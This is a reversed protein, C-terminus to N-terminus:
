SSAQSPEAPVPVQALPVFHAADPGHEAVLRHYETPTWGSFRRFARIVHPQDYYGSAAALGAWDPAGGAAHLADVLRHFRWVQAYRKPTTGTVTRFRAILTRHSVRLRAALGGMITEPDAHIAALTAAVLPDVGHAASARLHDNVAALTETWTTAAHASAVLDGFGPLVAEADQVRDASTASADPALVHLGAPTLEIGVHRILPPSEIVLYESQLGSVFADSVATAVGRRDYIAYPESLNVIVHVFPLPLIKEFRQPRPTELFWIRTVVGDLGPPAPREEYRM